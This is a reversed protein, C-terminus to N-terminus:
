QTTWHAELNCHENVGNQPQGAARSSEYSLMLAYLHVRLVRLDHKISHHHNRMPM